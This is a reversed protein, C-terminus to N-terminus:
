TLILVTIIPSPIRMKTKTKKNIKYCQVKYKLDFLDKVSSVGKYRYSIKTRCRKHVTSAGHTM